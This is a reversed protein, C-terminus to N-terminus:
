KIIGCSNFVPKADEFAMEGFLAVNHNNYSGIISGSKKKEKMDFKSRFIAKFGALLSPDSVQVETNIDNDTTWKLASKFYYSSFDYKTELQSKVEGTETDCIGDFQFGCLPTLHNKVEM